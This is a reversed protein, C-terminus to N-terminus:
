YGGIGSPKNEETEKAIEQDYFKCTRHCYVSKYWGCGVIGDKHEICFWKLVDSNISPDVKSEITKNDM